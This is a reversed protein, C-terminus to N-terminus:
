LAFTSHRRSGSPVALRGDSPENHGAADNDFLAVIRGPIGAGALGKLLRGVPSTRLQSTDNLMALRRPLIAQPQVIRAFTLNYVDPLPRGGEREEGSILACRSLTQM